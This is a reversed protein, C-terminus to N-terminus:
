NPPNTPIPSPPKSKPKVILKRLKLRVNKLVGDVNQNEYLKDSGVLHNHWGKDFGRIRPLLFAHLSQEQPRFSSSSSPFSGVLFSKVLEQPEQKRPSANLHTLIDLWLGEVSIDSTLSLHDCIDSVFGSTLHPLQGYRPIGANLGPSLIVSEWLCSLGSRLSAAQTDSSFM